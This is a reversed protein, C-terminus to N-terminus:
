MSRAWTNVGDTLAALPAAATRTASAPGTPSPTISAARMIPGSPCVTWVCRTVTGAPVRSETATAKSGTRWGSSHDGAEGDIYRTSTSSICFPTTVSATSSGSPKRQNSNTAPPGNM